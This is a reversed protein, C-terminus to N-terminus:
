ARQRDDQARKTNIYRTLTEGNFCAGQKGGIDYMPYDRGNVNVTPLVVPDIDYLFRGVGWQVAARKFSDSAEGKASEIKTETGVDSRWVWEGDIKVGIECYVKGNVDRHRSQWDLGMVEDLRRQADRSDIYPVCIAKGNKQSQVRWRVSDMPAALQELIQKTNSMKTTNYKLNKSM